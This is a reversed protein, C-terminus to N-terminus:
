GSLFFLEDIRCIAGRVNSEVSGGRRGEATALCRSLLELFRGIGESPKKSLGRIAASLNSADTVGDIPPTEGSLLKKLLKAPTGSAKSYASLKGTARDVFRAKRSESTSMNKILAVLGETKLRAARAFYHIPLWDVQNGEVVCRIYETPESPETQSLFERILDSKTIFGKRLRSATKVTRVDGVLRLTPAGVKQDFEGERIFNIRELLQEDIQIVGLGDSLLGAELDAIMAREPGLTLLREVMPLVGRRAQADRQDLLARLDSYKIRASQGPYRFLIDGERIQDGDPKTAIVPRSEHQDVHIVGVEMGDIMHSAIKIRPTPDFTSKIRKTLESIDTKGFSIGSMGTVQYSKDEGALPNSDKDHVGLLVYGGRNNALAAIARLWPGTHKLGFNSKCEHVDSEGHRFRWIGKADKIFMADISTESLPDLSVSLVSKQKSLFADLEEDSASPIEKSNGYTGTRITTIRGSNVSRDPRNFFFQIDKNKMERALMAKILAIEADTISRM